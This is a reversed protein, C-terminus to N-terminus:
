DLKLESEKFYPAYEEGFISIRFNTKFDVYGPLYLSTDFGSEDAEGDDLFADSTLGNVNYAFCEGDSYTFLMVGAERLQRYKDMFENLLAKQEPNLLLKTFRGKAIHESGSEMVVKYESVDLLQGRSSYYNAEPVQPSTFSFPDCGFATVDTIRIQKKTPEGSEMVWAEYTGKAYSDRPLSFAHRLPRCVKAMSEGAKFDAESAFYNFEDVDYLEGKHSVTATSYVKGDEEHFDQRVLLVELLKGNIFSFGHAQNFLYVETM